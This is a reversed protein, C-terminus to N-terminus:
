GGRGQASCSRVPEGRRWALTEAAVPCAAVVRRLAAEGAGAFYFWPKHCGLPASGELPEFAEFFFRRAVDRSPLRGAPTGLLREGFCQDENIVAFDGRSFSPEWSAAEGVRKSGAQAGWLNLGVSGRWPKGAHEARLIDAFTDRRRWQLGGNSAVRAAVREGKADTKWQVMYRSWDNWPPTAETPWPAGVMDYQLLERVDEQTVPRCLLGDTQFQIYHPSPIVDYLPLSKLAANALDWSLPWPQPSAAAAAAGWPVDPATSRLTRWEEGGAASPAACLVHLVRERADLEVLRLRASALLDGLRAAVFARAARSSVLVIPWDPPTSCATHRLAFELADSARPEIILTSYATAAGCPLLAPGSANSSGPAPASSAPLPPPESPSAASSSARLAAGSAPPAPSANLQWQLHLNHLLLALAALALLYSKASM